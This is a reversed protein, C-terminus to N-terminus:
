IRIIARWEPFKVATSFCTPDQNPPSIMSIIARPFPYRITGDALAKPKFFGLQSRTTMLHVRSMLSSPSVPPTMISLALALSHSLPGTPSSFALVIPSQASVLTSAVTPTIDINTNFGIVQVPTLFIPMTFCLSPPHPHPWSIPYPTIIHCFLFCLNMLFFMGLFIFDALLFKSVNVAM